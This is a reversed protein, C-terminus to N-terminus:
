CLSLIVSIAVIILLSHFFMKRAWLSDNTCRFGEFATRLWLGGLLLSSFLYAPGAYRFVGLLPATIFFALTYFFIHGKTHTIGKKLPLVPISARAYDEMRYISIAFFHPMQWLAVTLFLLFVELNVEPIVACYAAAPPVAGALSGILTAVPSFYKLFGYAFVYIFFGFLTVILAAPNTHYWLLSSGSLLLIASLFLAEKSSIHGTALPRRRTRNMKRDSERDIYNNLVCASGIIMSIGSLTMSFLPLSIAKKGALAFGAVATILNGAIIGPKMLLLYSRFTSLGFTKTLSM